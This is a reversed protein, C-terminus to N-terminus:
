RYRNYFDIKDYALRKLDADDSAQLHVVCGERGLLVIPEFEKFKKLNVFTIDDESFVEGTGDSCVFVSVEKKSINTENQNLFNKLGNEGREILIKKEEESLSEVIKHCESSINVCSVFCGYENDNIPIYLVKKKNLVDLLEERTIKIFDNGYTNKAISEIENENIIMYSM